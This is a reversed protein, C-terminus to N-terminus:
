VTRWESWGQGKELRERTMMMAAGWGAVEDLPETIAPSEALERKMYGDFLIERSQNFVRFQVSAANRSRPQDPLDIFISSRGDIYERTYFFGRHWCKQNRGQAM